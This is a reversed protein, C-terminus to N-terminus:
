WCTVVTSESKSTLVQHSTSNDAVVTTSAVLARAWLQATGPSPAHQWLLLVVLDGCAEVWIEMPGPRLATLFVKAKSVTCDSLSKFAVNVFNVYYVM